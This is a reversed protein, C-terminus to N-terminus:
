NYIIEVVMEEGARENLRNKVDNRIFHLDSRAAALRIRIFLKKERYSFDTVYGAMKKGVIDTWWEKLKIENVRNEFSTNKFVEKLIEGLKKMNDDHSM